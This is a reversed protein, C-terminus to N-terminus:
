FYGQLLYLVVASFLVSIFRDLMGGHGPMIIGFDKVQNSRKIYSGFLDGAQAALSGLIAFIFLAAFSADKVLLVKTFTVLLLGGLFGGAAGEATKNPSIKTYHTKGFYTGVFYAFTDNAWALVFALLYLNKIPSFAIIRYLLLFPFLIFVFAFGNMYVKKLDYRSMILSLGLLAVFYIFVIAMALDIPLFFCLAVVVASLFDDLRYASGFTGKLEMMCLLTVMIVAVRLALGGVYLLVIFLALGIIASLIRKNLM